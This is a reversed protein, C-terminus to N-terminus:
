FGSEGVDVITINGEDRHAALAVGIARLRMHPLFPHSKRYLREVQCQERTPIRAHDHPMVPVVARM